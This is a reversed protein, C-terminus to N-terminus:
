FIRVLVLKKCLIISMFRLLMKVANDKFEEDYRRREM